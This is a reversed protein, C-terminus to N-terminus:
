RQDAKVSSSRETQERIFDAFYESRGPYAAANWRTLLERQEDEPLGQLIKRAARWTHSAQDRIAQWWAHHQADIAHIREEPTPQEEAIQTALLPRNQREHKLAREAAQLRRPTISRPTLRLLKEYRVAFLM